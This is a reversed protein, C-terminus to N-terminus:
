RAIDRTAGFALEAPEAQAHPSAFEARVAAGQADLAPAEAFAEGEWEVGWPPAPVDVGHGNVTMRRTRLQPHEVRDDVSNVNGFATQAETLRAVRDAGTFSAFVGAVVGDFFVRDAVRAANSACRADDVLGPQRLM